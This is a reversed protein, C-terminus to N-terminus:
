RLPADNPQPEGPTSRGERKYRELLRKLESAIEPRDAFQNRRESLDERHNFREGPQDHRTYGRQDKLWPPEGRAGNDDGSPADS